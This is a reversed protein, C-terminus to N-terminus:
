TDFFFIPSFFSLIICFFLCLFFFTAAEFAFEDSQYKAKLSKRCSQCNM